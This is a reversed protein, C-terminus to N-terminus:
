PVLLHLIRKAGGRLAASFLARYSGPGSFPRFSNKKQKESKQTKQCDLCAPPMRLHVARVVCLKLGFPPKGVGNTGSDINEPRIRAQKVPMYVKQLSYIAEIYLWCLQQPKEVAVIQQQPVALARTHSGCMRHPQWVVEIVSHSGCLKQTAEVPWATRCALSPLRPRCVRFDSAM